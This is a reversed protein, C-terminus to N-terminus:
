AMVEPTLSQSHGGDWAPAHLIEVVACTRALMWSSAILLVHDGSSVMGKEMLHALGLIPDPSGAHGVTRGYELLWDTRHGDFGLPRIVDTIYRAGVAFGLSVRSVDSVSIGAEDLADMVVSQHSARVKRNVEDFSMDRIPVIGNPRLDMPIGMTATPPFLANGGRMMEEMEPVSTSTVARLRAFGGRSSLVIAAAADAFVTDAQCNWRNVLPHGYNDAGTVLAAGGGDLASLYPAAVTLAALMGQCGERLYIALGDGGVTHRQVYHQPSWSDPGQHSVGTHIVLSFPQGELGSRRLAQRAARVAMEPPPVDGAIRTSEWGTKEWLSRDCLGQEAAERVSVPEPLWTGLGALYVDPFRM